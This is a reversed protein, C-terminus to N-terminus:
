GARRGKVYADHVEPLWSDLVMWRFKGKREAVEGPLAALARLQQPSLCGAFIGGGLAVLERAFEARTQPDLGRGDVVVPRRRSM